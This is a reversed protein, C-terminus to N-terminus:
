APAIVTKSPCLGDRQRPRGWPPGNPPHQKARGHGHGNQHRRHPLLQRQVRILVGVDVEPRPGNRMEFDSLDLNLRLSKGM